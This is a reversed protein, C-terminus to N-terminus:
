SSTTSRTSNPLYLQIEPEMGTGADSVALMVHPGPRAGLHEAASTEDLEVTGTEITLEDKQPRALSDCLSVSQAFQRLQL